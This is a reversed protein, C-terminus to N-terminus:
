DCLSEETGSDIQCRKFGVKPTIEEQNTDSDEKSGRPSNPLSSELEQSM